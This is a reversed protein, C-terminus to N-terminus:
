AEDLHELVGHFERILINGVRHVAPFNQPSFPKQGAGATETADLHGVLQIFRELQGVDRQKISVQM